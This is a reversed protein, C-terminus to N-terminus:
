PKPAGARSGVFQQREADWKANMLRNDGLYQGWAKDADKKSVCTPCFERMDSPKRTINSVARLAELRLLYETSDGEGEKRFLRHWQEAACISQMAQLPSASPRLPLKRLTCNKECYDVHRLPSEAEGALSYGSSLCFPIDNQVTLPFLPWDKNEPEVEPSTAGIQMCPMQSEGDTRVFLLRLVLFIRQEDLDYRFQRDWDDGNLAHYAGLVKLAKQKGLPYLGNVARILSTSDFNYGAVSSSLHILRVAQFLDEPVQKKLDDFHLVQVTAVKDNDGLNGWRDAVNRYELLLYTGDGLTYRSITLGKGLSAADNFGDGPRLRQILREVEAHTMGAKIADPLSVVKESYKREVSIPDAASATLALFFIFWMPNAYRSIM